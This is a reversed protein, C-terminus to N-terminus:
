PLCLVACNAASTVLLNVANSAACLILDGWFIEPFTGLCDQRLHGYFRNSGDLRLLFIFPGSIKQTVSV